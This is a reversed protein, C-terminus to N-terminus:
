DVITNLPLWTDLPSPFPRGAPLVPIGFLVNGTIAAGGDVGLHQRVGDARHGTEHLSEPQVDGVGARM